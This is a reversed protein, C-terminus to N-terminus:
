QLSRAVRYNHSVIMAYASNIAVLTVIAAVRNKKSTQHAAYITTATIGAKFAIFAAKNGTLGKMLPNAEAGGRDLAMMTSHVDLGQMVATSVYLSSMLGSGKKQPGVVPYQFRESPVFQEAVATEVAAALNIPVAPPEQARADRASWPAFGLAIMAFSVFLRRSM